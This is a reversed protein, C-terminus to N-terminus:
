EPRPQQFAGCFGKRAARAANERRARGEETLAWFGGTAEGSTARGVPVWAYDENVWEPRQPESSARNTAYNLPYVTETPKQASEGWRWAMCESGICRCPVPNAAYPQDEPLSQRWRNSAPDGSTTSYRALPCWKERAQEETTLM